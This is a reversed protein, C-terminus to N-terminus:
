KDCGKDPAAAFGKDVRMKEKLLSFFDGSVSM